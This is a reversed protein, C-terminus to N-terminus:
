GISGVCWSPITFSSKPHYKKGSFGLGKHERILVVMSNHHTCVYLCKCTELSKGIHRQTEIENLIKCFQQLKSINMMKIYHLLLCNMKMDTPASTIVDYDEDSLLNEHHMMNSVSDADLHSELYTYYHSIIQSPSTM